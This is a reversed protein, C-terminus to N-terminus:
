VLSKKENEARRTYVIVPIIIMDKSFLYPALVEKVFTEETQGEVLIFVKKM